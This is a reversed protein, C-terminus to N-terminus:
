GRHARIAAKLTDCVRSVQDATLDPFLPLSLAREALREATGVGSPGVIAHETMWPFQHLPRFHISTSVGSSSMSRVVAERPVGVPLLVIMLHNASGPDLQGPVVRLGDIDRLEIRYQTALERRRAQLEDFRSLQSRALAALIDPLNAKIGPAVLDYLPTGDPRYRRWADRSMGHLRYTSAFEALGADSTAIAGGEGSTLNKTAYFSYCAALSRAGNVLGGDKRSAGLAHAADEIVPVEHHDCIEHIAESVAVGGMHVAVVVDLEGIADLLSDASLNLTQAEVDLLVPSLGRHVGALATSVFTWTPVGVRSGAPLDLYALCIELAHTCSSVALAHAAGLYDALEQELAATQEGSTLWGSRLVGIVADIDAETISPWSFPVPETRDSMWAVTALLHRAPPVGLTISRSVSGANPAEAM